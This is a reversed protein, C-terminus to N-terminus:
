NIMPFFSLRTIQNLNARRVSTASEQIDEIQAEAALFRSVQQEMKTLFALM